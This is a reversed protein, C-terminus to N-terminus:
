KKFAKIEEWRGDQALSAQESWTSINFLQPSLDAALMAKRLQEESQDMLKRYTNIGADQLAKAAKPGLGYIKLLDDAEKKTKTLSLSTVDTLFAPNTKGAMEKQWAKIVAKLDFSDTQAASLFEFASELTHVDFVFASLHSLFRYNESSYYYGKRCM